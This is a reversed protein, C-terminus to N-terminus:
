TCALPPGNMTWLLIPKEKAQAEVLADWFSTRWPIKRYALEEPKPRIFDRWREYTADTLEQAPLSGSALLLAIALSAISLALRRIPM